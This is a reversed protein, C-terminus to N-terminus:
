SPRRGQDIIGSLYAELWAPQLPERFQHLVAYGWDHTTTPKDIAWCNNFIISLPNMLHSNCYSKLVGMLNEYEVQSLKADIVLIQYKGLVLEMVGTTVSEACSLKLNPLSESLRKELACRAANKSKILLIRISEDVEALPPIIMNKSSNMYAMVSERLIRRHGKATRMAELSNSDVLKQASTTSIGLLEATQGSTLFKSNSTSRPGRPQAVLDPSFSLTGSATHTSLNKM